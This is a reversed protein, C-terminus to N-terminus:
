KFGMGLYFYNGNPYTLIDESKDGLYINGPFGPVRDWLQFVSFFLHFM